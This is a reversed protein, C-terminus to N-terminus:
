NGTIIIEEVRRLGGGKISLFILTGQLRLMSYPTDAQIPESVRKRLQGNVMTYANM